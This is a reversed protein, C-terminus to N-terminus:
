AAAYQVPSSKALLTIDLFRNLIASYINFLVDYISSVSRSTHHLYMDTVLTTDVM